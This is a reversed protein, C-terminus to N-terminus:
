VNGSDFYFKNKKSIIKDIILPERSIVLIEDRFGSYESVNFSVWGDIRINYKSKFYPIYYKKFNLVLENDVSWESSRNVGEPEYHSIGIFDSCAANLIFSAKIKEAKSLSTDDAIIHYLTRINNLDGINILKLLRKLKYRINYGEEGQKLDKNNIGYKSAIINSSVFYSGNHRTDYYDFFKDSGKMKFDYNTGQYLHTRETVITVNFDDIFGLTSEDLDYDEYLSQEIKLKDSETRKGQYRNTAYFHKLKSNNSITRVDRESNFKKYQKLKKSPLKLSM